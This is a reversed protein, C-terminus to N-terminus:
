CLSGESSSESTLMLGSRPLTWRCCFQEPVSTVGEELGKWEWKRISKILSNNSQSNWRGCMTKAMQLHQERARGSAQAHLQAAAWTATPHLCCQQCPVAAGQEAHHPSPAHQTEAGAAAVSSDLHSPLPSASNEETNAVKNRKGNCSFYSLKFSVLFCPYCLSSLCQAVSPHSCWFTILRHHPSKGSSCHSLLASCLPILQFNLNCM